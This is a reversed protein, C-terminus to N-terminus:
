AATEPAELNDFCARMKHVPARFLFRAHSRSFRALRKIFLLRAHSKYYPQALYVVCVLLFCVFMDADDGAGYSVFLGGHNTDFQTFSASFSFRKSTASEPFSPFCKSKRCVTEIVFM